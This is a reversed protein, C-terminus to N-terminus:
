RNIIKVKFGENVNRAGKTILLDNEALGEIRVEDVFYDIIQVSKKRLRENEVVNVYNEGNNVVYKIPIWIGSITGTEIYIKVTQGISAPLESKNNKFEVKLTHRFTQFDPLASIYSVNGELKKSKYEIIAKAGILIQDLDKQSISTEVYNGTGQVLITEAGAEIIEGKQPKIESVIGDSAAIITANNLNEQKARLDIKAQLFDQEKIDRDLKVKNLDTESIGGTQFATKLNQYYKESERFAIEAQVLQKESAELALKLGSTELQILKTGKTVIQNKNVFITEVKGSMVFSYNMVSSSVIGFYEVQKSRQCKKVAKVEVPFPITETLIEEKKNGTFLIVAIFIAIGIGIFLIIRTKKNKSM